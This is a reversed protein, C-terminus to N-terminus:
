DGVRIKIGTTYRRTTMRKTSCYLSGRGQDTLLAKRLSGRPSPPGAEALQFPQQSPFPQQSAGGRGGDVKFSIDRDFLTRHPSPPDRLQFFPQQSAGLGQSPQVGRGARPHPPTRRLSPGRRSLDRYEIYPHSTLTEVGQGGRVSSNASALASLVVPLHTVEGWINYLTINNYSLPQGFGLSQPVCLSIYSKPHAINRHFLIVVRRPCFARSWNGHRSYMPSSVARKASPPWGQPASSV